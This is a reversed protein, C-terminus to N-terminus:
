AMWLFRNLAMLAALLGKLGFAFVHAGNVLGEVFAALAITLEGAVGLDSLEEFAGHAAVRAPAFQGIVLAFGELHGGM